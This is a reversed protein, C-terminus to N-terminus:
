RPLPDALGYAIDDGSVWLRDEWFASLSETRFFMTIRKWRRASTPTPCTTPSSDHNRQRQDDDPLLLCLWEEGDLYIRRATVQRPRRLSAPSHPHGRPDDADRRPRYVPSRALLRHDYAGDDDHRVHPDARLRHLDDLLLRGQRVVDGRQGREMPPHGQRWRRREGYLGQHPIDKDSAGTYTGTVTM